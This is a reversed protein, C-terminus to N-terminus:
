ATALPILSDRRKQPSTRKSILLVQVFLLLTAKSKQTAEPLFSSPVTDHQGILRNVKDARIRAHFTYSGALLVPRPCRTALKTRAEHLDHLVFKKIISLLTPLLLLSVLRKM